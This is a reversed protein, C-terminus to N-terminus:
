EYRLAQVIELGAAKRAPIISALAGFVLGIVAASVLGGWPFIYQVPFGASAMAQVLLYGLYLGAALGFVAGLAALLLAEALITRSVQKRTTGVARLMGIERTREIVSIALTNITTLLSPLAMFAFLVYLASFVATFYDAMQNSYERGQIVSFQPYRGAAERIAAGAKATDAGPKLNLQLFVDDTRHFDRALNDQSIFATAIKANLFDTAVGVVRYDQRGEATELPLMVGVRAGISTALIPNIIITRGGALAAFAKESTGDSFSLASVLPFDTPDIGLISTMAGGGAASGKITRLSTTDIVAAGYRITSVRDVGDIGRLASALDGKAGVDNQWVAIAPPVFLYDSGLSKRLIGLFGKSISVTMGGLAVIIALAIMTTSATVAARSPQRSLNNQALTGTANRAFLRGLLAGFVLSLPRVLAPAVLVIGTMFMVAGLALLSTSGSALALLALAALVIGAVAGAGMVRRHSVTDAVPRLAELPTVRGASLAPFLGAALTVGVGVVVSVIVIGPTVIPLGIKVHVFSAIMPGIAAMGVLALLYGALMGIATGLVGQILGEAVIMGVITGRSAGIARLMGIDRRREAVITRFTNFIIFAGMFLALVGFASFGISAAQLAAFLSGETALTELTFGSGLAAEVSAKIVSRQSADSTVFNAEISSIQGPQAFLKQAEALTVLVEENGPLARPSRLGVITLRVLGEATPLSLADGLKLGISEALSATIVAADTDDKQLFRGDRVVYPRVTRATGPELGILSLAAVRDAMKPDHDYFDAPLNVSRALIGQMSRLGEIGSLKDLTAAPFANGSKLTATLDVADTAAMMGAQFSQLMTPVLINMGFIVLVGFVVALTTLFARLKRGALYRAALTLRIGM